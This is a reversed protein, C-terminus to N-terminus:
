WVKYKRRVKKFLAVAKHYSRKIVFDQGSSEYFFSHLYNVIEYLDQIDNDRIEQTVIGVGKHTKINKHKISEILYIYANWMKEGMQQLHVVKKTSNYKQLEKRAHELFIDIKTKM